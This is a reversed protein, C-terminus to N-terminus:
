DFLYHLQVFPAAVEAIRKFVLTFNGSAIRFEKWASPPVYIVDDPKILLNSASLM